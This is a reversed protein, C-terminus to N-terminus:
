KPSFSPTMSMLLGYVRGMVELNSHLEVWEGVQLDRQAARKGGLRQGGIEKQFWM